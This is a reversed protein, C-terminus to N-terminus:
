KLAQELKTPVLAYVYWYVMEMDDTRLRSKGKREILGKHMLNEIVRVNFQKELPVSYIEGNADLNEKIFDLVKKQAPSLKGDKKPMRNELELRAAEINRKDEESCYPRDYLQNGIFLYHEIDKKKMSKFDVFVGKNNGLVM